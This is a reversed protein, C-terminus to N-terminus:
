TLDRIQAHANLNDMQLGYEWTLLMKEADGTKALPSRNLPDLTKLSVHDPDILYAAADMFLDPVIKLTGFDTVYFDFAGTITSNEVKEFRTANGAFSSAIVKDSPRVLLTTPQGGATYATQMAAKVLAESFARATGAVPATNSSVIPFAGTGGGVSGQQIWGALGRTQRATGTAGANLTQNQILAVEADRKIEKTKKVTQYDVEKDRGAKDVINETRSVVFNKTSIQCYNGYRVTPTVATFSSVDDGELQANNAAAALADTQWEFYRSACKGKKLMSYFPTVTPSINDIVDSLDERMGIASYTTFTNAVIAM